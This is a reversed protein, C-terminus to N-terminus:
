LLQFFNLPVLIAGSSSAIQETAYIRKKLLSSFPSLGCLHEIKTTSGPKPSHSLLPSDCFFIFSSGKCEQLPQFICRHKSNTLDRRHDSQFHLGSSPCAPIACRGASNQHWLSCLWLCLCLQSCTPLRLSQLAAPAPLHAGLHQSGEESTNRLSMEGGQWYQRCPHLSTLRNCQSTTFGMSRGHCSVNSQAKWLSRTAWGRCFGM